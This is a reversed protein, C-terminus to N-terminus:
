AGLLQRRLLALAALMFLFVVIMSSSSPAAAQALVVALQTTVTRDGCHAVLQYDGVPIDNASVPAQFRGDPESTTSGVVKDGILLTVPVSGPCGQGKATVEGGPPVSPVDLRLALQVEVPVPPSPPVPPPPVLLPVNVLPPPTFPPPIVPQPLVLPPTFTPPTFIPPIFPPLTVPPVVPPVEVPPTEVPPTEVPPIVAAEVPCPLTVNKADSDGLNDTDTVTLTVTYTGDSPFTHSIVGPAGGSGVIAGDGFDISWSAIPGDPDHSNAGSFTAQLGSCGLPDLVAVPPVGQVQVVASDTGTGLCDTLSLHAVYSGVATYTHTAAVPPGTGTAKNDPSGPDGFFMTWSTIPCPSPANLDAGTFNVTLPKPGSPPNPTLVVRPGLVRITVSATDCFGSSPAGAPRALDGGSTQCVELTATYTGPATYTHPIDAPVDSFNPGENPSGDGFMLTWTDYCTSGSGDFHVPLPPPGSTPTASLSATPPYLGGDGYCGSYGYPQVSAADHSTTTTARTPLPSASRPSGAPGRSPLTAATTSPTAKPATTVPSRRTVTTRPAAKSTTSTLWPPRWDGPDSAAVASGAAAALGGIAVIWVLLIRLGRLRM